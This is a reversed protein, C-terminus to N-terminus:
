FRKLFYPKNMIKVKKPWVNVIYNYIKSLVEDDKTEIALIKSDMPIDNNNESYNLYNPTEDFGPM